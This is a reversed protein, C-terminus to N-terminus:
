CMVVVLSKKQKWLHVFTNVTLDNIGLNELLWEWEMPVNDFCKTRFVAGDAMIFCVIIQAPYILSTTFM